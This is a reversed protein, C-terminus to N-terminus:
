EGDAFAGVEASMLPLNLERALGDALAPHSNGAVLKPPLRHPPAM